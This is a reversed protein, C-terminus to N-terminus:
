PRPTQQCYPTNLLWHKGDDVVRNGTESLSGTMTLCLMFPVQVKLTKRILEVISCVGSSTWVFVGVALERIEARKIRGRLYVCMVMAIM